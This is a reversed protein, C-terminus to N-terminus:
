ALELNDEAAMRAEFAAGDDLDDDAFPEFAEADLWLHESEIWALGRAGSAAPRHVTHTKTQALPSQAHAGLPVAATVVVAAVAAPLTLLGAYRTLSDNMM